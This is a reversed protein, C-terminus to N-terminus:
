RAPMTTARTASRAGPPPTWAETPTPSGRSRPRPSRTSGIRSGSVETALQDADTGALRIHTASHSGIELGAASLEGVQAASLLPWPTDADWENTAGLRDSIVFVTASFQHRKLVPLANELM